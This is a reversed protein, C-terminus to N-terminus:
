EKEEEQDRIEEYEYFRLQKMLERIVAVHRKVYMPDVPTDKIVPLEVLEENPAIINKIAPIIKPLLDVWEFCKGKELGIEYPCINMAAVGRIKMINRGLYELTERYKEDCESYNATLVCSTSEFMMNPLNLLRRDVGIYLYHSDDTEEVRIKM